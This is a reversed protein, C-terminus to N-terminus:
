GKGIGCVAVIMEGSSRRKEDQNVRNEDLDDRWVWRAFRRLHDLDSDLMGKSRANPVHALITLWEPSIDFTDRRPVRELEYVFLGKMIHQRVRKWIRAELGCYDSNRALAFARIADRLQAESVDVPISLQLEHLAHDLGRRQKTTLKNSSVLGACFHQLLTRGTPESPSHKIGHPPNTSAHALM